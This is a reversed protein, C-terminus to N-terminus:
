LWQGCGGRAQGAHGPRQGSEVQRGEEELVDGIIVKAGEQAFLRAEAAGMGRAGGSIIAVKGELRM